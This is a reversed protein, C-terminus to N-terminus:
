SGSCVHERNEGTIGYLNFIRDDLELLIDQGNEAKKVLGTLASSVSDDWIPVPLAELQGRLLKVSHYQKRWLFAFLSSNLWAALLELSFDPDPILCNASNLTVFGQRDLSFVPRNGIFRYVLKPPAYDEAPRTQQLTGAGSRLYLRPPLARFPRIERGTLVPLSGPEPRDSLFRSNDGTVTGLIWSSRGALTRHPRSRVQEIIRCDRNSCHINFVQDPNTRYRKLPQKERFGGAAAALAKRPQGGKRFDVQVVPTFVGRFIRGHHVLRRPPAEKLIRSRIDRHTRVYLVSEPLLFSARDEAGMCGITRALFFSFSEGSQIQPFAAKLHKKEKGHFHAGWPPNTAILCGAPIDWSDTLADGERIHALSGIEPFRLFLNIRALFVARPDRDMGGASEPRGSKEAFTCLFMGSGCCPDFFHDPLTNRPGIMGRIVPRPTFYAGQRIRSGEQRLAQYILGPLDSERLLRFPLVPLGASSITRCSEESFPAIRRYRLLLEERLVPSDVSELWVPRPSALDPRDPLNLFKKRGLILLVTLFLAQELPLNLGRLNELYETLYKLNQRHDMLELPICMQTSYKKNARRALMRDDGDIKRLAFDPANSAEPGAQERKLWNRLTHPSINLQEATENISM